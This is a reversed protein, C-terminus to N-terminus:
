VPIETTDDKEDSYEFVSIHCEKGSFVENCHKIVNDVNTNPKVYCITMHPTYGGYDDDVHPINKSFDHNIKSLNETECKVIVVWSDDNKFVDAGIFRFNFPKANKSVWDVVKDTPSVVGYKITIHAKSSIGDDTWSQDLIRDKVDVINGCERVLANMDEPCVAMLCGYSVDESATRAYLNSDANEGYDPQSRLPELSARWRRLTIEM